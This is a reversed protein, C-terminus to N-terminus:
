LNSTVTTVVANISGGLANYAAYVAVAIAAMILAYEAMSQGGRGTWIKRVLKVENRVEKLMKRPFALSRAACCRFDSVLM